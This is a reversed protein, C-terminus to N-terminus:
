FMFLSIAYIIQVFNNPYIDCFKGTHTAHPNDVFKDAGQGGVYGTALNHGAVWVEGPESETVPNLEEDLLYVACNDLPAGLFLIIINSYNVSKITNIISLSTEKTILLLDSKMVCVGFM